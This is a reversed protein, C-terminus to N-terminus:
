IDILREMQRQVKRPQLRLRRGWPIDVWIHLKEHGADLLHTLLGLLVLM